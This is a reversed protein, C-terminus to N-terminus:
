QHRQRVEKEDRCKRKLSFFRSCARVGDNARQSMLLAGKKIDHEVFLAGVQRHNAALRPICVLFYSESLGLVQM